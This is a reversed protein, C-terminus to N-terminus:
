IALVDEKEELTFFFSTEQGLRSEAWIRGGHRALIRQVLALGVGTGEFEEQTHLRQFVGFLKDKYEPDFGVGNDRIRWINESEGVECSVEICAVDRERSFKVANSLLNVFVQRMLGLDAYLHPLPGIILDFRREKAAEVLEALVQRVLYETDIKRRQLPQRNLQSFRLLDAILQAMKRANGSVRELCERESESLKPLADELLIRTFGDIARLPARLDHSVSYSFAELEKNSAVLQATRQIVRQELEENLHHLDNEARKRATIDTFLGVFRHIKGNEEVVPNFVAEWVVMQGDPREQVIEFSRWEGALVSKTAIEMPERASEPLLKLFHSGILSEASRGMGECVSRNLSLLRGREDFLAIGNRAGEVLSQYHRQSAALRETFERILQQYVFIAMALICLIGTVGIPFLRALAMRRHFESANIDTGMIGLMANSEPDIVPVFASVFTGYRDTYPGVTGETGGLFMQVLEPPAEDYSVGAEEHGLDSVPITDIWFIVKGERFGMLYAWRVGANLYGFRLLQKRIVRYEEKDRDAKTCTLRRLQRISIMMASTKAASLLAHKQSEAAQKGAERIFLFGFMVLASLAMLLMMPRPPNFPAGSEEARIRALSHSYRWVSISILFAFLARFLQVPIGDVSGLEIQDIFFLPLRAEKELVLGALLAYVFMCWSAMKLLEVNPIKNRATKYLVLASILGGPLCLLLRSAHKGSEIGWVVGIILVLFFPVASVKREPVIEATSRLGERGFELLFLFSVSLIFFRIMNLISTGEVVSLSIMELWEYGGHFLGFLGLHKWPLLPDRTRHLAYCVGALLLFSLGYLFYVFDM